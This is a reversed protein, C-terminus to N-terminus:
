SGGPNYTGGPRMQLRRLLSEGAIMARHPSKVVFDGHASAYGADPDQPDRQSPDYHTASFSFGPDRHLKEFSAAGREDEQGGSGWHKSSGYGSAEVDRDSGTASWNLGLRPPQRAPDNRKDEVTM